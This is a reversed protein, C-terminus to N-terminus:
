FTMANVIYDLKNRINLPLTKIFDSSDPILMVDKNDKLLSEIFGIEAFTDAPTIFLKMVDGCVRCFM